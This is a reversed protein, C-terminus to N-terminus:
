ATTGLLDDIEEIVTAAADADRDPIDEGTSHDACLERLRDLETATFIHTGGEIKELLALERRPPSQDDAVVLEVHDLVAHHAVWAEPRDLPLEYGDAEDTEASM